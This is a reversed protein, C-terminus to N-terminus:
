AGRATEPARAIQHQYIGLYTSIMESHDYYRRVRQRGVERQRAVLEPDRALQILAAATEQPSGVQTVFGAAGLERDAREGGLIIESCAGVDTSVCPVGAVFGELIVLPQGESISTLVLADLKPYWLKVDQPGTFTIRDALGLTQVLNQCESFYDPEEDTPGIIYTHAEPVAEAVILCARILTLVDKIPVVRGVFGITFQGPPLEPGPTARAQEFVDIRVGNPVIRIKAPDAGAAIQKLRNGDYLTFIEDACAYTLKGLAQFLHIWLSKLIGFAHENERTASEVYIWNAKVIEIRRENTYIGHETLIMPSGSRLKALSALLGSWGTTVTHYVRAPPIPANLLQFLPYHIFRWTWFYDVFSLDPASRHYLRLLVEWAKDSHAMDEISLYPTKGLRDCGLDRFLTEFDIWQGDVVGTSFRELAEWAKDRQAPSCPTSNSVLRVDYIYIEVLDRLNPPLEYKLKKEFGRGPSLFVLGFKLGPMAHLLAHIWSSVGGSVFPYTGECFVVVDLM